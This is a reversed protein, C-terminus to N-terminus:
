ELNKKMKQLTALFAEVEEPSLGRTILKELENLKKMVDDHLSIAKSTLLLKKLRADHSVAAREILGNKEMLQLIGTATSRRINLQAEIDKQFIDRDQNHYLYGIIIGQMGTPHGSHPCFVSQDLKRKILNSLTKVEFGIRNRAPM